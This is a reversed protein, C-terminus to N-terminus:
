NKGFLNLCLMTTTAKVIGACLSGILVTPTKFMGSPGFNNVPDTSAVTFTIEAQINQKL